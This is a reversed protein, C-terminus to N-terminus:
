QVFCKLNYNTGDPTLLTATTASGDGYTLVLQTQNGGRIWNITAKLIGTAPDELFSTGYGGDYYPVSVEAVAQWAGNEKHGEAGANTGSYCEFSFKDPFPISLAIFPLILLLILKM